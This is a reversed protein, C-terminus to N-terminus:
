FLRDSFKLIISGAVHNEEFFNVYTVLEAESITSAFNKACKRLFQVCDATKWQLIQPAM